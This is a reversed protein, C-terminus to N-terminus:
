TKRLFVYVQRGLPVSVEPIVVSEGGMRGLGLSICHFGGGRYPNSRPFRINLADKKKGAIKRLFKLM